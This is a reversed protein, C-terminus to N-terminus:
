TGVTFPNRRIELAQKYLPETKSYNGKYYYLDALDNLSGAYQSNNEGYEKELIKHIQTAVDIAEGYKGEKSLETAQQKISTIQEKLNDDENSKPM